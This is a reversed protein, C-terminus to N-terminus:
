RGGAGARGVVIGRDVGAEDADEVWAGTGDGRGDRAVTGGDVPALGVVVVVVFLCAGGTEVAEDTDGARKTSGTPVTGARGATVTEPALAVDVVVAKYPVGGTRSVAGAGDSDVPAGVAAPGGDPAESDVADLTGDPTEFAVFGAAGRGDKSTKNGADGATGNPSGSLLDAEYVSMPVGEAAVAGGFGSGTVPPPAGTGSGVGDPAREVVNVTMEEDAGGAEEARTGCVVGVTTPRSKIPGKSDVLIREERQRCWM